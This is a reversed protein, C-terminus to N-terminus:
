GATQPIQLYSTWICWSIRPFIVIWLVLPLAKLITSIKSLDDLSGVARPAQSLDTKYTRHLILEHRLVRRKVLDRVEVLSTRQCANYVVQGELGGIELGKTWEENFGEGTMQEWSTRVKQEKRQVSCGMQDWGVEELDKWERTLVSGMEEGEEWFMGDVLQGWCFRARWQPYLKVNEFVSPKNELHRMGQPSLSM